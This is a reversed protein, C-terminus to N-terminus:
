PQAIRSHSNPSESQGATRDYANWQELRQPQDGDQIIVADNSAQLGSPMEAFAPSNHNVIFAVPPPKTKGRGAITQPATSVLSSYYFSAGSGTQTPYGSHMRHRSSGLVVTKDLMGTLTQRMFNEFYFAEFESLQNTARWDFVVGTATPLAQNISTVFGALKSTDQGVTKAIQTAEIILIRNETRVFRSTDTNGERTATAKSEMEIAARTSKDNLVALMQDVATAYESATKAANVRPISEVLAKDWDTERYALYPHFYKVVGWVKALGVLREIRLEEAASRGDRVVSRSANVGQAWATGELMSLSLVFCLFTALIKPKM